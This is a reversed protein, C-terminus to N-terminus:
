FPLWKKDLAEVTLRVGIQLNLEAAEQYVENHRFEMADELDHTFLHVPTLELRDIFEGNVAEALQRAVDEASMWSPSKLAIGRYYIKETRAPIEPIKAIFGPDYAVIVHARDELPILVM